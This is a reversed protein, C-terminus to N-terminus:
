SYLHNKLNYNYMYSNIVHMSIKIFEEPESHCSTDHLSKMITNNRYNELM